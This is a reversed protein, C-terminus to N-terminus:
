AKSSDDQAKSQGEAARLLSFMAERVDPSAADFLAIIEKQEDTLGSENEPTPKETKGLLYDVSCDLYNAIRAFKDASPIAGSKELDYIFNRNIKIDELM